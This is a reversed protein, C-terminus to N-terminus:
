EAWGLDGPHEERSAEGTEGRNPRDERRQSPTEDEALLRYIEKRARDLIQATQTQQDKTGAVVVQQVATALKGLAPQVELFGKLGDTVRSWPESTQEPHEAMYERGADTIEYVKTGTEGEVLAIYGEDTLMELAPYISGPGPRWLGGSRESIAGMLQYGNMPQEALLALIAARVDGRRGRGRYMGRGGMPGVPPFGPIGMGFRPGHPHHVFQHEDFGQPAM